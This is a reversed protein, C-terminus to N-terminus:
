AAGAQLNSLAPHLVPEGEGAVSGEGLLQQEEETPRHGQSGPYPFPFPPLHDLADLVVLLELVSM